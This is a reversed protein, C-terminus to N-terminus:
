STFVFGRSQCNAFSGGLTNESKVQPDRWNEGSCPWDGGKAVVDLCELYDSCAVGQPESPLGRRHCPSKHRESHMHRDGRRGREKCEGTYKKNAKKYAYRCELRDFFVRRKNPSTDLFPRKCPCLCVKEIGPNKNKERKDKREKARKLAGLKAAPYCSRGFFRRKRTELFSRGCGCECEKM